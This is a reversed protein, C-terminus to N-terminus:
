PEKEQQQRPFINSVMQMCYDGSWTLLVSLVQFVFIFSGRAVQVLTAQLLSISDDETYVLFFMVSLKINLAGECLSFWGSSEFDVSTWTNACAYGSQRALEAAPCFWMLLAPRQLEASALYLVCTEHLTKWRYIDFASWFAAVM